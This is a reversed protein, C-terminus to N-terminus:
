LEDAEALFGAVFRVLDIQDGITPPESLEAHRLVPTILTSRLAAAPVERALWATELSPVIPDGEGHVLYAPVRLGELGRAPSVELLEADKARAADLLLANLEARHKSQTTIDFRERGEPSLTASIARGERYKGKLWTMLARKAVPADAPSFFLEAYATVMV